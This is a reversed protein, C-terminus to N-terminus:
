TLDPLRDWSASYIVDTFVNVYIPEDMNIHSINNYKSVPYRNIGIPPYLVWQTFVRM